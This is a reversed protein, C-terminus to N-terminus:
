QKTSVTNSQIPVYIRPKIGKVNALMIPKYTAAPAFTMILFSPAIIVTHPASQGSIPVGLSNAAAVTYVYPHNESFAGSDIFTTAGGSTTGVQVGDRYVVYYTPPPLGSGVYAASASWQIQIQTDIALVTAVNTPPLYLLNNTLDSIPGWRLNDVTFTAQNPQCAPIFGPRWGVRGGIATFDHLSTVDYSSYQTWGVGPVLLWTNFVNGQWSLAISYPVSETPTSVFSGYSRTGGFNAGVRLATSPVAADLFVGNNGDKTLCVDVVDFLQGGPATFSVVDIAVYSNDDPDGAAPLIFAQASYAGNNPYTVTGQGGSFAISGNTVASPAFSPATFQGTNNDFPEFGQWTM